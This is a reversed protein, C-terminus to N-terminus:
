LSILFRNEFTYTNKDYSKIISFLFYVTTIKKVATKIGRTQYTLERLETLCVNKIKCMIKFYFLNELLSTQANV